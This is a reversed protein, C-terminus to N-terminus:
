PFCAGQLIEMRLLGGFGVPGMRCAEGISHDRHACARVGVFQLFFILLLTRSVDFWYPLASFRSM